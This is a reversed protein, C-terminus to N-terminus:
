LGDEKPRYPLRPVALRAEWAPDLLLLYRHKPPQPLRRVQLDQAQLYAQNTTGLRTSVSRTHRPHGDGLDLLPTSAVTGTYWWGAAQYITGRHGHAPDAYSLLFRLSTHRRLLRRLVALVRSEAYRPLDDRLWFRALTAGDAATAGRFLRHALRAGRSLQLVGGLSEGDFVGLMWLHGASVSHLYHHRRLLSAGLAFPLSCLRLAKVGLAGPDSDFRWRAPPGPADEGQVVPAAGPRAAVRRPRSVDGAFVHGEVAPEPRDSYSPSYSLLNHSGFRAKRAKVLTEHAALPLHRAMCPLSPAVDGCPPTVGPYWM